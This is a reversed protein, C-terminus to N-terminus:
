NHQLYLKQCTIIYNLPRNSLLGNEILMTKEYLISSPDSYFAHIRNVKGNIM